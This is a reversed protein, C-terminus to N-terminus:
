RISLKSFSLDPGDDQDKEQKAMPESEDYLADADVLEVLRIAISIAQEIAKPEISSVLDDPTHYVAPKSRDDWVIGTLTCAEVGCRYAEAADTGGAFLPLAESTAKYGMDHAIKVCRRALKSSLPQFGNVDRELFTLEDAYYPSDFNLM